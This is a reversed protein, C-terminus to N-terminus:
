TQHLLPPTRRLGVARAVEDEAGNFSFASGTGRRRRNRQLTAPPAVFGLASGKLKAGDRLAVCVDRKSVSTWSASSDGRVYETKATLACVKSLPDGGSPAAGRAGLTRPDQAPEVGREPNRKTCSGQSGLHSACHKIRYNEETRQTKHKKTSVCAAPCDCAQKPM